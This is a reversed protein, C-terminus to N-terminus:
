SNELVHTPEAILQTMGYLSTLSELQTGENSSQDNIFWTKSKANFDGLLLLFHPNRSTIDALLNELNTLFLEFEDLNQNPSHYLSVLYGKINISNASQFNIITGDDVSFFM